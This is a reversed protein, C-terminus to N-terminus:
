VCAVVDRSKYDTRELYDNQTDGTIGLRDKVQELTVLANDQLAM